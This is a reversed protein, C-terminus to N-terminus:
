MITRSLCTTLVRSHCFLLCAIVERVRKVLLSLGAGVVPPVNIDIYDRGIRPDFETAPYNSEPPRFLKLTIRTMDLARDKLLLRKDNVTAATYSSSPSDEMEGTLGKGNESSTREKVENDASSVDLDNKRDDKKNDDERLPEGVDSGTVYFAQTQGQTRLIRVEEKDYDHESLEVQSRSRFDIKMSGLTSLSCPDITFVTAYLPGPAGFSNMECALDYKSVWDEVDWLCRPPEYEYLAANDTFTPEPILVTDHDMLHLWDEITFSPDSQRSSWRDREDSIYMEFSLADSLRANSKSSPWSRNSSTRKSTSDHVTEKKAKKDEKNEAFKDRRVETKEQPEVEMTSKPKPELETESSSTFKGWSRLISDLEKDKDKDKPEPPIRFRQQCYKYWDKTRNIDLTAAGSSHHMQRNINSPDPHPCTDRIFLQRGRFSPLDAALQPPVGVLIGMSPLISLAKASINLPATTPAPVPPSSASFSPSSAMSSSFGPTVAQGVEIGLYDGTLINRFRVLTSSTIPACSLPLSNYLTVKLSKSTKSTSSSSALDLPETEENSTASTAHKENTNSSDNSDSSAMTYSSAGRDEDLQSSPISTPKLMHDTMAMYTVTDVPNPDVIEIVWM